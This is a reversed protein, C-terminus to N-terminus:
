WAKNRLIYYIISAKSMISNVVIVNTVQRAVVGRNIALISATLFADPKVMLAHQRYHCFWNVFLLPLVFRDFVDNGQYDSFSTTDVLLSQLKWGHKCSALEMFLFDCFDFPVRRRKNGIHDFTITLFSLGANGDLAKRCLTCINQQQQNGILHVALSRMGPNKKIGHLLNTSIIENYCHWIVVSQISGNATFSSSKSNFVQMAQPITIHAIGQMNRLISNTNELLDLPIELHFLDVRVHKPVCMDELGKLLSMTCKGRLRMKTRNDYQAPLLHQPLLEQKPPIISLFCHVATADLPGELAIDYFYDLPLSATVHRLFQCVVKLSSPMGKQSLLAPFIKDIFYVHLTLGGLLSSHRPTLWITYTFSLPFEYLRSSIFVTPSLWLVNISKERDYSMVRRSPPIAVVKRTAHEGELFSYTRTRQHTDIVFHFMEYTLPFLQCGMWPNTSVDLTLQAEQMSFGWKSATELMLNHQCLIQRLRNTAKFFCNMKSLKINSSLNYPHELSGPTDPDGTGNSSIVHPAMHAKQSDLMSSPAAKRKGCSTLTTL